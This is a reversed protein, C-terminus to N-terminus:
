AEVPGAVTIKSMIELNDCIIFEGLIRGRYMTPVLIEMKLTQKMGECLNIM